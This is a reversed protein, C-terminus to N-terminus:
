SSRLVFAGGVLVALTLVPFLLEAVAIRWYRRVAGALLWRLLANLGFFALLVVVLLIAILLLASGEEGAITSSRTWETGGSRVTNYVLDWAFYLPLILLYGLGLNVAASVCMLVARVAPSPPQRRGRDPAGPVAPGASAAASVDTGPQGDGASM